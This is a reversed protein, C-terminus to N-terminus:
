LLIINKLLIQQCCYRMARGHLFCGDLDQKALSACAPVVYKIFGYSLNRHTDADRKLRIEYIEGYPAFLKELDAESCFIPLDGLFLTRKQSIPLM